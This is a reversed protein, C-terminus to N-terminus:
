QRLSLACSGGQLGAYWPSSGALTHLYKETLVEKEKYSADNESPFFFQPYLSLNLVGIELRRSCSVETCLMAPPLLANPCCTTGFRAGDGGVAGRCACHRILRGRAGWGAAGTWPVDAPM